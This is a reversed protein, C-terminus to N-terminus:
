DEYKIKYVGIPFENNFKNEVFLYQDSSISESYTRIIAEGTLLNYYTRDKFGIVGNIHYLPSFSTSATLVINGDKDIIVHEGHTLTDKHYILGSNYNKNGFPTFLGTKRFLKDSIPAGDRHLSFFDHTQGEFYVPMLYIGHGIPEIKAITKLEGADKQSIQNM